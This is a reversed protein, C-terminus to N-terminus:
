HKTQNPIRQKKKLSDTLEKLVTLAKESFGISDFCVRISNDKQPICNRYFSSDKLEAGLYSLAWKLGDLKNTISDGKFNITYSLHLVTGQKKESSCFTFVSGAAIFAMLIFIIKTKNM